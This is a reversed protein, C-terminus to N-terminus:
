EGRRLTRRRFWREAAIWAAVAVVLFFVLLPLPTFPVIMEGGGFFVCAAILLALVTVATIMGKRLGHWHRKLKETRIFERFDDSTKRLEDLRRADNGRETM